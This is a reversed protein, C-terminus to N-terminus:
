LSGKAEALCVEGRVCGDAGGSYLHVGQFGTALSTVSAPCPKTTAQRPAPETHYRKLTFLRDALFGTDRSPARKLAAPPPVSRRGRKATARYTAHAQEVVLSGGAVVFFVPSPNENTNKRGPPSSPVCASPSHCGSGTGCRHEQRLPACALRPPPHTWRARRGCACRCLRLLLGRRSAQTGRPM